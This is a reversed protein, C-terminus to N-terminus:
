AGDETEVDANRNPENTVISRGPGAGDKGDESALALRQSLDSVQEELEAIRGASSESELGRVLGSHGGHAGRMFFHMLLHCALVILALPLLGILWEM